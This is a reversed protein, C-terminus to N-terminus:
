KLNEKLVAPWFFGTQFAMTITSLALGQEGVQTMLAGFVMVSFLFPKLLSYKEIYIKNSYEGGKNKSPRNDIAKNIVSFIMGISMIIFLIIEKFPSDKYWVDGSLTDVGYVFYFFGMYIVLFVIVGIMKKLLTTKRREAVFLIIAVCLCIFIFKVLM